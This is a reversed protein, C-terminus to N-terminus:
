VPADKEAEGRIEALTEAIAGGSINFNYSLDLIDEEEWHDLGAYWDLRGAIKEAGHLRIIGVFKSLYREALKDIEKNTVNYKRRFSM